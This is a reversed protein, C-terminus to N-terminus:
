TLFDAMVLKSHTVRALSIKELTLFTKKEAASIRERASHHRASSGLDAVLHRQLPGFVQLVPALMDGVAFDVDDVHRRRPPVAEAEAGDDVV